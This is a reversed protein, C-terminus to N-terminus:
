AHNDLMTLENHNGIVRLKLEFFKCNLPLQYIKIIQSMVHDFYKCPIFHHHMYQNIQM